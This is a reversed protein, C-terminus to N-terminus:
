WKGTEHLKNQSNIRDLFANEEDYRQFL